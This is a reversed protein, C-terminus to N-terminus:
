KILLVKQSITASKSMLRVFYLGSRHEKAQWAFTYSGKTIYQNIIGDVERGAVDFIDISVFQDISVDIQIKLSSNFPNPYSKISFQLPVSNIPESEVSLYNRKISRILEQGNNIQDYGLAWIMMGGLEKEIVYESKLRMSEPDDYTLIKTKEDNVLYPVLADEDWKRTWGNGILSPIETYRVDKIDGTFSGNIETANFELGWFPVGMNIQSKPIGRYITLYNIGTHCSGEPDNAPSQYLPSNHGNHSTWTGHMGYTMANFFDIYQKLTNFDHWQGFWNATTVAMTILWDPNYANFMSDMDMVLLNLNTRDTASEPFEWDLDVGDYGNDECVKILNNIFTKRLDASAAVVPFGEHNGWGGLSLLFTRDEAHIIDSMGSNFMGSYSLINGEKDPWGFSHIVHTVVDLDIKEPPFESQMWYPYYAVVRQGFSLSLSFIIFLLIKKM